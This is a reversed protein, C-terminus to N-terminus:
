RRRGTLREDLVSMADKQVGNILHGYVDMTTSISSHGLIDAISKPHVGGAIMLAVATHRLGHLTLHPIKAQCVIKAFDKSVREGSIPTGNENTFVYGRGEWIGNLRMQNKAQISRVRQLVEKCTQNLSVTRRSGNTKPRGEVLGAGDIRQLTRVVRLSDHDLDVDDWKLGCLESRRMATLAAMSYFERFQSDQAADLFTDLTDADWAKLEYKEPRPPTAVDAPNKMLDGWLVAFRLAQKLVRHCHLVTRKSLGLGLMKVYLGQIQPATLAQLRINGLTPGIHRRIYHRYGQQTRLSTNTAVYTDLWKQLFDAVTQTSKHVHDGSEVLGLLERLRREAERRSGRYTETLKTPNGSVEQPGDFRIQWRGSGPPRERVSGSGKARRQSRTTM